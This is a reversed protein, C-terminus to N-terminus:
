KPIAALCITLPPTPYVLPKPRFYVKPPPPPCANADAKDALVSEVKVDASACDAAAYGETVNTKFCQGPTANLVLCLSWANVAGASYQAYSGAPCNEGSELELGVRYLAGPTGCELVELEADFGGKVVSVCDGVNAENAGKPTETPAPVSEQATPPRDADSPVDDVSMLDLGWVVIGAAAAVCAVVVLAGILWGVVPSREKGWDPPPFPTQDEASTDDSPKESEDVPGGLSQNRVGDWAVRSM